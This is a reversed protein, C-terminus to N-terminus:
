THIMEFCLKLSGMHHGCIQLFNGFFKIGANESTLTLKGDWPINLGDDILKLAWVFGARGSGSFILVFLILRILDPPRIMSYWGEEPPPSRQSKKLVM